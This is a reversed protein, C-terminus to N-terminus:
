GVYGKMRKSCLGNELLTMKFSPYIFLICLKLRKWVWLKPSINPWTYNSWAGELPPYRPTTTLGRRGLPPPVPSTPGAWRWLHTFPPLPFTTWEIWKSMRWLHSRNRRDRSRVLLHVFLSIPLLTRTIHLAMPFLFASFSNSSTGGYGDYRDFAKYRM